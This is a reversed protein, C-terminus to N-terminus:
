MECMNTVAAAMVSFLAAGIIQYQELKKVGDEHNCTEYSDHTTM